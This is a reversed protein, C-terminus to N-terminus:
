PFPCLKEWPGSLGCRVKRGGKHVLTVTLPLLSRSGGSFCGGHGESKPFSKVRRGGGPGWVLDCVGWGGRGPARPRPILFLSSKLHSNPAGLRSPGSGPMRGQTLRDLHQDGIGDSRSQAGEGGM